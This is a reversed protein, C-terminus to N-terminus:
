SDAFIQEHQHKIADEVVANLRCGNGRLEAAMRKTRPSVSFTMSERHEGTTLPKRGSGPRRGGHQKDNSM